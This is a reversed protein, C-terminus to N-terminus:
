RIFNSLGKTSQSCNDTYSGLSLFHQPRCLNSGRIDKRSLLHPKFFSWDVGTFQHQDEGACDNKMEPGTTVTVINKNKGSTNQSPAEEEVLSPSQTSSTM